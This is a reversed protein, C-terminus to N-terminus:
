IIPRVQLSKIDLDTKDTLMMERQIVTRYIDANSVDYFLTNNRETNKGHVQGVYGFREYEENKSNSKSLAAKRTALDIVVSELDMVIPNHFLLRTVIEEVMHLYLNSAIGDRNIQSTEDSQM